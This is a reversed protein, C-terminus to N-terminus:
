VTRSAMRPLHGILAHCRAEFERAERNRRRHDAPAAVDELHWFHLGYAGDVVQVVRRLLHAAAETAEHAPAGRAWRVTGGDILLVTVASSSRDVIIGRGVGGVKARESITAAARAAPGAAFWATGHVRRRALIPELVERTVEPLVITFRGDESRSSGEGQVTLYRTQASELQIGVECARGPRLLPSTAIVRELVEFRDSGDPVPYHETRPGRVREGRVEVADTDLRVLVKRRLRAM